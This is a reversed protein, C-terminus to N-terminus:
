IQESNFGTAKGYNCFHYVYIIGVSLICIIIIIFLMGQKAQKEIPLKVSPQRQGIKAAKTLQKLKQFCEKVKGPSASVSQDVSLSGNELCVRLFTSWCEGKEGYKELM